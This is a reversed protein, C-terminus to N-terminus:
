ASVAPAPADLKVPRGKGLRLQELTVNVPAAGKATAVALPELSCVHVKTGAALPAVDSLLTAHVGLKVM